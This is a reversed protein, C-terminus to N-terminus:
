SHTEAAAQDAANQAEATFEHVAAQTRRTLARWLDTLSAKISEVTWEGGRRRHEYLAGGILALGVINRLKM